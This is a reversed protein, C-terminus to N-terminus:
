LYILYHYVFHKKIVPIDFTLCKRVSSRFSVYLEPKFSNNENQKKPDYLMEIRKGDVGREHLILKIFILSKEMSVTVDDFDIELMRDDWHLGQLFYSYSTINIDHGYKELEQDLFPNIVCLSVSPYINENLDDHHYEIYDNRSIDEDKMFTIFCDISLMITALFCMISFILGIFNIIKSAFM